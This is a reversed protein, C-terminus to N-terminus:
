SISARYLARCIKFGLYVPGYAMDNKLGMPNSKLYTYGGRSVLEYTIITARSFIHGDNHFLPEIYPGVAELGFFVPDHAM